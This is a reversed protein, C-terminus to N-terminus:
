DGYKIRGKFFHYFIALRPFLLGGLTAFFSTNTNLLSIALAAAYLSNRKLFSKWHYRKIDDKTIVGTSYGRLLRSSDLILLRFNLTSMLGGLLFGSGIPFHFWISSLGFVLTLILTSKLVQNENFM